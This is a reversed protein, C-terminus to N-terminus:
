ARWPKLETDSPVLCKRNTYQGLEPSYNVKAFSEALARLAQEDTKQFAPGERLRSHLERIIAHAERRGKGRQAFIIGSASAGRSLDSTAATFNTKEVFTLPDNGYGLSVGFANPLAAFIGNAVKE